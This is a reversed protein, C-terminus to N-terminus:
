GSYARCEGADIAICSGAMMSAGPGTLFYILPLMEEAEAMYGRPIRESIFKELVEPNDRQMRRFSNEPAFFGGPLIGTVVVNSAALENGLSRVYAALGAKVTNYGTSAVAELSTVSGVHLVHGGGGDQMAPILLRNIEAGAVINVRFLTELQEATLLPERFGYGGGMCHLIVDPPGDWDIVSQTLPAANAPANLDCPHYAHRGPEPLSAILDALRDESRATAFIRAGRAAFGEACVRGLGKSAGTILVKKGKHHEM